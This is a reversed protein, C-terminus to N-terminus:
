GIQLGAKLFRWETGFQRGPLGQAAITRLVEDDAVRLSAAAEALTLVDRSPPTGNNSRAPKASRAAIPTKTRTM